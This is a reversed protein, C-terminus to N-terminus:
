ILGTKLKRVYSRGVTVNVFKDGHLLNVGRAKESRRQSRGEFIKTVHVGKVQAKGKFTKVKMSGM